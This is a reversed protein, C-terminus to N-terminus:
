KQETINKMIDNFIDVANTLKYLDVEIEGSDGDAILGEFYEVDVPEMNNEQEKLLLAAGEVFKEEADEVVEQESGFATKTVRNWVNGKAPVYARFANGDHYIVYAVPHEWDGGSNVLCCPMGNDLVHFGVPLGQYAETHSVNESDFNVQKSLEATINDDVTTNFQEHELFKDNFLDEFVNLPIKKFTRLISEM